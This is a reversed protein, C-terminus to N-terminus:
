GTWVVLRNIISLAETVPVNGARIKMLEAREESKDERYVCLDRQNVIDSFDICYVNL